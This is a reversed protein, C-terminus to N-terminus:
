CFVSMASCRGGRDDTTQDGVKAVPLGAIFEHDPAGSAPGSTVDATRIGDGLLLRYARGSEPSPTATM